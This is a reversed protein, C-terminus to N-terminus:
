NLEALGNGHACPPDMGVLALVVARHLSQRPWAPASGGGPSLRRHAGAASQGNGGFLPSGGVVILPVIQGDREISRALKEVAQPEILRAGEFRLEAACAPVRGERLVRSRSGAAAALACRGKGM